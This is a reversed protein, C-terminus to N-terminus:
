ARIVERCKREKWVRHLECWGPIYEEAGIKYTM